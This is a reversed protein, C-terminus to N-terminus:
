LVEHEGSHACLGSVDQNQTCVLWECEYNHITKNLLSKNSHPV